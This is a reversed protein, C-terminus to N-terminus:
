KIEGEEFFKIIYQYIEKINALLRSASVIMQNGSWELIDADERLIIQMDANIIDSPTGAFIVANNKYREEWYQFIDRTAIANPIYEVGYLYAEKMSSAKVVYYDDYYFESKLLSLAQIALLKPGTVSIIPIECEKSTAKFELLLRGYANEDWVLCFVEDECLKKLDNPMIGGYLLGYIHDKNRLIFQYIELNLKPNCVYEDSFLIVFCHPGESLVIKSLDPKEHWELIRFFYPESMIHNSFNLVIASEIFDPRIGYGLGISKKEMGSANWLAKKVECVKHYVNNQLLHTVRATVMPAAYSNAKPIPTFWGNYDYLLNHQSSAFIDAQELYNSNITYQDNHFSPESVVGIVGSLCAPISYYNSNHMASIIICNNMLLRAVLTQIEEFDRFDVSGLSMNIVRINERLCWELALLLQRSTGNCQEQDMVKISGIECNPAYKKIIGACVSGHSLKRTDYGRRPVIELAELVELNHKLKGVSFCDENVGDDIVIVEM